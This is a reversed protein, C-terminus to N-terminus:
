EFISCWTLCLFLCERGSCHLSREEAFLPLILQCVLWCAAAVCRGLQKKGDTVVEGEDDSGVVEGGMVIEPFCEAYAEEAFGKLKTSAGKDRPARWLEGGGSGGQQQQQCASYPGTDEIEM